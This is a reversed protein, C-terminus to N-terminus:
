AGYHHKIAGTIQEIVFDRHPIDLKNGTLSGHQFTQITERPGGAAFIREIVIKGTEAMSLLKDKALETPVPMTFKGTAPEITGACIFDSVGAPTTSTIMIMDTTTTM